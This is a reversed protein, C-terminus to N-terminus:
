SPLYQTWCFFCTNLYCFPSQFCKNWSVHSFLDDGYVTEGKFAVKNWSWVLFIKDNQWRCSPSPFCIAVSFLFVRAVLSYFETMRKYLCKSKGKETVTCVPSFLFPFFPLFSPSVSISFFSVFLFRWWITALYLFLLGDKSETSNLM